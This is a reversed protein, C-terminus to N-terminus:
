AAALSLRGAGGDPNDRVVIQVDQGLLTLFRLLREVSFRALRGNVLASVDPQKIALMEAVRAQKLGRGNILQRIEHVLEARLRMDDPNEFDLDAFVNGSGRVFSTESM